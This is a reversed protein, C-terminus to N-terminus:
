QGLVDEVYASRPQVLHIYVFILSGTFRTIAEAIQEEQTAAAAEDRRRKKLAQITRKLSTSLSDPKPALAIPTPSPM